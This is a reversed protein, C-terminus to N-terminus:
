RNDIITLEWATDAVNRDYVLPMQEIRGPRVGLDQSLMSFLPASVSSRNFSLIYGPDAVELCQKYVLFRATNLRQILSRWDHPELPREGTNHGVLDVADDETLTLLVNHLVVADARPIRQRLRTADDIILEVDDLDRAPRMAQTFHAQDMESGRGLAIYRKCAKHLATAVRLKGDPGIEVVTAIKKERLFRRTFGIFGQPRPSSQLKESAM